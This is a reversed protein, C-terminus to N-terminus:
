ATALCITVQQHLSANLLLMDFQFIKSIYQMKYKLHCNGYARAHSWAYVISLINRKDTMFYHACRSSFSLPNIDVGTRLFDVRFSCSPPVKRVKTNHDYKLPASIRKRHRFAPIQGLSIEQTSQVQNWHSFIMFPNSKDGFCSRGTRKITETIRSKESPATLPAHQPSIM